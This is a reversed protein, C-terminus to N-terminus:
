ARSPHLFRRNEWFILRKMNYVINALGIKIHARKLGITRIFLAMKNKQVAFVHEVKSRVKSKKGNARQSHQPMVKGKPKKRHLQSTFGNEKLYAENEASRYATDGWVDSSTNEKDLLHPFVKGDYRSADSTHFKRVFGYRKDTSVHNKYGFYPTALDITKEGERVKAKSYRVVWRADRDKQSLKSPNEKWDEPIGGQKITEKEEKTMRQRPASVITADVIQGSMALYGRDKLAQDFTAFLKEILGKQVLRERYLWITKADPVSQCLSLDLFRMFSLRDKIQYETQDDSLNYLTQLMLIKFILVSDYPPRGGKARNKFELGDEIEARFVEFDVVEKLKELPDGFKSLSKLRNEMDFLGPQLM